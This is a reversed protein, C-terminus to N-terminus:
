AEAKAKLSKREYEFSHLGSEVADAQAKILDTRLRRYPGEADAILEVLKGLDGLTLEIVVPCADTNSYRLKM